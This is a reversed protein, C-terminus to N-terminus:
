LETGDAVKVALKRIRRRATDAFKTHPYIACIESWIRRAAAPDSGLERHWEGLQLLAESFEESTTTPQRCVERVTREAERLDGFHKAYIGALMMWGQFDEERKELQRIIEREAASFEGRQLRELARDYAPPRRKPVGLALLDRLVFVLLVMLGVGLGLGGFIFVILAIVPSLAVGWFIGAGSLEGRCETHIVLQVLLWSLTAAAWCSAVLPAAPLLLELTIRKWDDATASALALRPITAVHGPILVFNFVIWLLMPVAIGKFAWVLLRAETRMGATAVLAEWYRGVVWVCLALVLAIFATIIILMVM